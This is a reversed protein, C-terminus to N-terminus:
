KNGKKKKDGKKDKLFPHDILSRSTRSVPLNASWAAALSCSGMRGIRGMVSVM